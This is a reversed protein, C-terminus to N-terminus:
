LDFDGIDMQQYLKEFPESVSSYMGQIDNNMWNLSALPFAENKDNEKLETLYYNCSKEIGYEKAFTILASLFDLSHTTLVINLGYAKQLLVIIEAYKIQWEPHLHVEPEDIVM